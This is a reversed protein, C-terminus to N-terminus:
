LIERQGTPLFNHHWNGETELCPSGLFRLATTEEGLSVQPFHSTEMHKEKHKCQSVGTDKHNGEHKGKSVPTEM